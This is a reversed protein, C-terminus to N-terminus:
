LKIGILPIFLWDHNIITDISSFFQMLKKHSVFLVDITTIHFLIRTFYCLIIMRVESISHSIFLHIQFLFAMVEEELRINWHPATWSRQSQRGHLRSRAQRQTHTIGFNQWHTQPVNFAGSLWEGGVGLVSAVFLFLIGAGAPHCRQARHQAPQLRLSHHSISSAHNKRRVELQCRIVSHLTSTRRLRQRPSREAGGDQHSEHALGHASDIWINLLTM